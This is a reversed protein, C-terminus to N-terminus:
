YDDKKYTVRYVNEKMKHKIKFNDRDFLFATCQYNQLTNQLKM